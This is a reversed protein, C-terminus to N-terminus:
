KLATEKETKTKEVESLSYKLEKVQAEYTDKMKDLERNWREETKLLRETAEAYQKQVDPGNHARGVVELQKRLEDVERRLKENGLRLQAHRVIGRRRWDNGDFKSVGGDSSRRQSSVIIQDLDAKLKEVDALIAARTDARM